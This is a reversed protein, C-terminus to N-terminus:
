HDERTNIVMTVFSPTGSSSIAALTLAEGPQLIIPDTLAFLFNGTDGLTSSFVVQANDTFTCTTAASDTYTCSSASHEVFSPAGVLTADKILLLTVPNVHKIAGSVSLVNVVSQNARGAFVICNRVTQLARYAAATVATSTAGYTFRGGTLAKKGEIFGAYSACKTTVTSGTGTSYAFMTFPFSPNSFTPTTRTNPFTLTHVTVFDANNGGPPIVEVKFSVSGFGLYQIDIQYVNGKTPDLTVGSAGTGDLKDGNWATQEYWTDTSAVGALTQAFAGVAPTGGTQSLSYAGSKPGASASLFVVTSGRAVATWGSFTFRSIEYATQQTNAGNTIGTVTFATDNLTITINNTTSSKTTVTLTRIERVGGTVHLIGFDTGDYGFYAGAESTGVGVGQLSLATGATFLGTFRAVIGQGPRYRLRKLSQITGYGGVAGATSVEFMNGSATATGSSGVTTRQQTADIGYVADAQLEPDLSEAHVSGFPLRPAHIAVELHGEATSAFNVVSGDDKQGTLLVRQVYEEGDLEMSIGPGTGPNVKVTTM